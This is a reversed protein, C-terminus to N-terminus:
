EISGEASSSALSEDCYFLLGLITLFPSFTEEFLQRIGGKLDSTLKYDKIWLLIFVTLAAVFLIICPLLDPRALMPWLLASFMMGAIRQQMKLSPEYEELSKQAREPIKSAYKKRWRYLNLDWAFLLAFTIFLFLAFHCLAGYNCQAEAGYDAPNHEQITRGGWVEITVIVCIGAAWRFIRDRRGHWGKLFSIFHDDDHRFRDFQHIYHYIRSFQLVVSIMSICVFAELTLTNVTLESFRLWLARVWRSFEWLLLVLSASYLVAGAAEICGPIHRYKM